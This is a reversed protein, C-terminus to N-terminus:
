SQSKGKYKKIMLDPPPRFRPNIDQTGDKHLLSLVSCDRKLEMNKRANHNLLLIMKGM